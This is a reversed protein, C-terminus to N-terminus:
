KYGKSATEHLVIDSKCYFQTTAISNCVLFNNHVDRCTRFKDFKNHIFPFFINEKLIRM